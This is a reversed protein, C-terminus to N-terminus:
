GPHTGRRSVILNHDPEIFSQFFNIKKAITFGVLSSASKDKSLFGKWSFQMVLNNKEM